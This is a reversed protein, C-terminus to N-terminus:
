RALLEGGPPSGQGSRAELARRARREEGSHLSVGRLAAVVAGPHTLPVMHGAGAVTVVRGGALRALRHAWDHGAIRDYRGRVVVVPVDLGAVADDTAYGRVVTMSRAMTAPGVRVYTPALRPVERLREHRATRAWHWATRPWTAIRPDTVPGVLVLGVVEDRRLASEVVVPCGASHGVLVVPGRPGRGAGRRDLLRGLLDAQSVVDLREGASASRGMSPLAAVELRGGLRADLDAYVREDLGLGPM